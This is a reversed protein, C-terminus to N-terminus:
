CETGVDAREAKPEAHGLLFDGVQSPKVHRIQAPNFTSLSVRRQLINPLHHHRKTHPYPLQKRKLLSCASQGYARTTIKKASIARTVVVM